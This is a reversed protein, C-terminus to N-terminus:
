HEDCGTLEDCKTFKSIRIIIKDCFSIILATLYAFRVIEM